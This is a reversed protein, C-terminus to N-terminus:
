EFRATAIPERMDPPNHSVVGNEEIRALQASQKLSEAVEIGESGACPASWDQRNGEVRATV